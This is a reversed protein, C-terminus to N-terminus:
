HVTIVYRDADSPPGSKKGKSSGAVPRATKAPSPSPAPSTSSVPQPQELAADILKQAADVRQEMGAASSNAVLDEVASAVGGKDALRKVSETLGSRLQDDNYLMRLLELKIGLEFLAGHTADHKAELQRWIPKGATDLLYHMAAATDGATDGELRPLDPVTADLEAALARARREVRALPGGSAGNARGLVFTALEDGLRYAGQRSNASLATTEAAASDSASASAAATSGGREDMYSYRASAAEAGAGGLLGLATVGIAIKGVLSRRGVLAFPTALLAAAIVVIGFFRVHQLSANFGIVRVWDPLTSDPAAWQGLQSYNLAVIALAPLALVALVLGVIGFAVRKKPVAPAPGPAFPPGAPQPPGFSAPPVPASGLQQTPVPPFSQPQSM